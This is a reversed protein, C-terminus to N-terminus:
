NPIVKEGGYYTLAVVSGGDTMLPRARRALEILSFASVDQAKQYGDRTTEVFRGMLDERPAFAVSHVIFDIRGFTDGAASFFADLQDDQTVDCPLCLAADISEALPTVRRELREGQYSLGVNAGAEVAAQTIAWAISRDNAVGFVLGNKGDLRLM